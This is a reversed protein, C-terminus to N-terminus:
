YHMSSRDGEHEERLHALEPYVRRVVRDSLLVVEHEQLQRGRERQGGVGRGDDRGAGVLGEDPLRAHEGAPACSGETRSRM